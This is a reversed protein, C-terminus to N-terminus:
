TERLSTYCLDGRQMILDTENSTVYCSENM